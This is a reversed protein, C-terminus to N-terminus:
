VRHVPIATPYRRKLSSGGPALCRVRDTPRARFRHAWRLVREWYTVVPAERYQPRVRFRAFSAATSRCLSHYWPLEAKAERFPDASAKKNEWL